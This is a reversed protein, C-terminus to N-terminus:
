QVSMRPAAATPKCFSINEKGGQECWAKRAATLDGMLEKTVPIARLQEAITKRQTAIEDKLNDTAGQTSTMSLGQLKQLLGARKCWPTEAKEPKGCWFAQVEKTAATTRLNTCVSAGTNKPQKCFDAYIAQTTGPALKLGKIQEMLAKKAEATTSPDRYKTLIAQRKCVPDEAKDAKKCYWEYVASSTSTGGVPSGPRLSSIKSSAGAYKATPHACISTARGADTGCWSLKMTSYEKSIASMGTKLATGSASSGASTLERMEKLIADREPKEKATQLKVTLARRKCLLSTSERSSCWHAYMDGLTKSSSTKSFLTKKPTSSFETGPLQATVLAAAVFLMPM